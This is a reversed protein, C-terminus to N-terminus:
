GALEFICPPAIENWEPLKFAPIIAIIMEPYSPPQQFRCMLKFKNQKDPYVLKITHIQV